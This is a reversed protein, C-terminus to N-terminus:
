ELLGRTGAQVSLLGGNANVHLISVVSLEGLPPLNAFQVLTHLEFTRDPKQSTYSTAEGANHGDRLLTWSIPPHSVEDTLDITYPPLEGLRWPTMEDWVWWGMTLLWFGVITLTLWRPPM